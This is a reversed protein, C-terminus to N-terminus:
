LPSPASGSTGAGGLQLARGLGLAGSAGQSFGTVLVDRDLTHGTSPTFQRAARLLDLSASTESPVDKWPHKGPGAGMGLYDPAVTAFGASAYAISPGSLFVKRPM